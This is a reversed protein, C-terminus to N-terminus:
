LGAKASARASVTERWRALHPYTEPPTRFKAIRVFDLGVLATIDAITFRDGAIFARDALEGDLWACREPLKEACWAAYEPVQNEITAFIPVGHRVTMAAPLVLELEVRRDWMEIFAMEVPDAGMLNPEPFLHELYRSIARSEGLVRGDDLELVPLKGLPSLRRFAESMNAREFISVERVELRAPDRPAWVGDADAVLEGKEALLMMVRRPNPAKASTHLIM